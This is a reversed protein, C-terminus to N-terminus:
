LGKQALASKIQEFSFGRYQLFRQQRAREKPSVEKNTGFRKRCVQQALAVWAQEDSELYREILTQDVSLQQLEVRLRVPGQGRSKRSRVFIEVFREDSQLGKDQLRKIVIDVAEQPYGKQFLREALEWAGYERRALLRMAAQRTPPIADELTDFTRPQNHM